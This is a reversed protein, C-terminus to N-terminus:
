KSYLICYHSRQRSESASLGHSYKTLYACYIRTNFPYQKVAKPNWESLKLCLTFYLVNSSIYEQPM